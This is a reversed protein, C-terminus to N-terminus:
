AKIAPHKLPQVRRNEIFTLYAKYKTRKHKSTFNVLFQLDEALCQFCEYQAHYQTTTSFNSFDYSSYDWTSDQFVMYKFGETGFSFHFSPFNLRMTRENPFVVIRVKFNVEEQLKQQIAIACKVANLSSSFSCLSGDGLSQAM